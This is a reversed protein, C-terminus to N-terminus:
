VALTSPSTIGSDKRSRASVTISYASGHAGSTAICSNATPISRFHMSMHARGVTVRRVGVLCRDADCTAPAFRAEARDLYENLGIRHESNLIAGVPSWFLPSPDVGHHVTPSPPLVFCNLTLGQKIVNPAQSVSGVGGTERWFLIYKSSPPSPGTSPSRFDVCTFPSHSSHGSSM